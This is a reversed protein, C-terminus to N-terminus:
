QGTKIQDILNRTEAYIVQLQQSRNHNDKLMPMFNGITINYEAGYQEVAVDRTKYALNEVDKVRSQFADWQTKIRKLKEPQVLHGYRM